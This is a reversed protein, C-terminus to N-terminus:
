FNFGQKQIDDSEITKQLAMNELYATLELDEKQKAYDIATKGVKNKITIDAGHEIFKKVFELPSEHKNVAYILATSGHEDQQNINIATELLQDVVTECNAILEKAQRYRMNENEVRYTMAYCAAILANKGTSDIVNVDAGHNLFLSILEDKGNEAALIIPMSYGQETEVRKNIDYDTNLLVEAAGKLGRNAISAMLSVGSKLNM